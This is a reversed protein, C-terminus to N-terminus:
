ETTTEAKAKRTTRKRTTKPKAKPKAEEAVEEQEELVINEEGSAWYPSFIIPREPVDVITLKFTFIQTAENTGNTEYATVKATSTRQSLDEYDLNKKNFSLKYLLPNNADKILTFDTSAGQTSVNSSGPRAETFFENGDTQLNFLLNVEFSESDEPVPIEFLTEGLGDM